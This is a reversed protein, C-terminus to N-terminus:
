DAPLSDVLAAFDEHGARPSSAISNARLAALDPDVRIWTWIEESGPRQLVDYLQSVALKGYRAAAAHPDVNARHRARDEVLGHLAAYFCAANYRVRWDIASGWVLRSTRRVPGADVRREIWELDRREQRTLWPHQIDAPRALASNATHLPVRKAMEVALRTERRCVGAIPRVYRRLYRRWGPRWASPTTIGIWAWIIRRWCLQHRLITWQRNSRAVLWATLEGETPEPADETKGRHRSARDVLPKLERLRAVVKERRAKAETQSVEEAGDPVVVLSAYTVGLRYRAEILRPWLAVVRLYVELALDLEKAREHANGQRLALMANTPEDDVAQKFLTAAEAWDGAREREIARAYLELPEDSKSAWTTWLPSGRVSEERAVYTKFVSRAAAEAAAVRTKRRVTHTQVVRNDYRSTVEVTLVFEASQTQAGADTGEIVGTVRYGTKPRMWDLAAVALEVVVRARALGPEEIVTVPAGRVAGAPVTPAHGVDLDSLTAKMRAAVSHDIAPASPPAAGIESVRTVLDFIAGIELRGPRNRICLLMLQRVLIGAAIVLLVWDVLRLPPDALFEGVDRPIPDPDRKELPGTNVIARLVIITLMALAILVPVLFRAGRM